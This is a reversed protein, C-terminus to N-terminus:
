LAGGLEVGILDFSTYVRFTTTNFHEQVWHALEHDRSAAVVSTPLGRSVEEAHSPGSLVGLHIVDLMEHLIETPRRFTTNEIGKTLSLMWASSPILGAFRNLTSRLYATPIASVLLTAGSVAASVDETLRVREPILVGPLLRRNERHERLIAANEPRASWLVVEHDERRALLVAIATGWAGDGLIAIKEPM